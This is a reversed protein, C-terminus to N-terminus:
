QFANPTPAANRMQNTARTPGAELSHGDSVRAIVQRRIQAMTRRAQEHLYVGLMAAHTPEYKQALLGTIMGTLIDGSGGTAHAAM